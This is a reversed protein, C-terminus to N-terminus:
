LFFIQMESLKRNNADTPTGQLYERSIILHTVKNFSYTKIITKVNNM